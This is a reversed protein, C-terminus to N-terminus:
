FEEKLADTAHAPYVSQHWLRIPEDMWLLWTKGLYDTSGLLNHKRDLLDGQFCGLFMWINCLQPLQLQRQSELLLADLPTCHVWLITVWKTELWSQKGARTFRRYTVHGANFLVCVFCSAPSCISCKATLSVFAARLLQQLRNVFVNQM